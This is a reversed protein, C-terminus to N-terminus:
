SRTITEHLNLIVRAVNAWSALEAPDIGEPAPQLGVKLLAEAAASDRAYDAQFQKLLRMLVELEGTQPERALAQRWAWNMRSAADDGGEKLIRTAFARSTEVFTPDNLLVLAQQPINSRIREAACEERTPADFALMAPHVFSRQWWVYLGRRYQDEGKSSEYTRPPFNLNEWYGDPQYPKVSPGGITPTMLGSVTLANDRVLEAELRWRSQCALERNYPDKARLEPTQTSVQRYTQSAVILRVMHKMDWGSDMFECALWDLLAQNPAAEGQTGLDDLLRSLGTGFFQKWLRNMTVRATLPNQRSVIWNALDLRTLLQEKTSARAGPLYPPLAPDVVEGAQESLFNGRPLIHVTRREGLRVTVLCRPITTEFDTKAKRAAALKQRLGALQPASAKFQEFLKQVQEATPKESCARLLEAVEAPPPLVYPGHVVEPDTCASVRFHGLTHNGNGFNQRLELVLSDGGGVSVVESLELLMQQPKGVEPLIAWGFSDENTDDTIVAAAAWAKGPNNEAAMTQEFTARASKFKLEAEESESHRLRGTIRGIVFNGNAARGPGKAPLSDHPLTELRLGAVRGPANTFTLTYTDRDPKKGEALISGEKQVKLTAGRSSRARYPILVTWQKERDLAERQEKQWAAFADKLEPHEAGLDGELASVEGELRALETEQKKDPVMEGEERRGISPEKVDAFFAGLSYFDRTTPPDFKHDHCACCGLTQGLWVTGLARVRDTLMRYEYDKPQAGGEETTLLLRNFASGVRQELGCQPLLDGALQERTFQDFPKDENFARIVYDRYPWVNRPNDSHYGITDAFRAVDLWGMAMREGYHASSLLKEVLDAYANTSSDHEFAAVEDPRPPLGVLDFYLRRALVRREAEPSPKLGVTKLREQVLYDIANATGPIQAKTPPIYAWHGEYKAGQAIWARLLEKEAATLTKHTKPPPMVHEPDASSIRKMLESEEPKGPVIAKKSLASEERDLRLKAKRTREDHGHCLFCKDALVPRIQRNFSVAAEAAGARVSLVLLLMLGAAM